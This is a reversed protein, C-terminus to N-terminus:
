DEELIQKYMELLKKQEEDWCFCELFLRQGKKGAEVRMEKNNSYIQLANVIEQNNEPNVCIGFGYKNIIDLNYPSDNLIVPIGMAMCEYVKTSLNQSKYYQGVDHLVCLGVEVKKLIEVVKSRNIVGLFEVCSIERMSFVENKFDDSYFNGALYLKYGASYCAKIIELIGHGRSLTGIFCATNEEKPENESYYDYLESKWPYNGTVCKHKCNRSIVDYYEDYAPYTIGDIRSFLNLSFREFLKAILNSFPLYKKEKIMEVYNEHCDFVVKKGKKKLKKAYQLLEPDHLHYLDADVRIAADYAKESFATMRYLRGVKKQQGIGIIHVSNKDYSDGPEVLYTDYRAKALSTCARRFIRGDEPQHVCTVHCVKYM